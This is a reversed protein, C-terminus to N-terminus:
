FRGTLSLTFQRGLVDDVQQFQPFPTSRTINNAVFNATFNENIEYIIGYNFTNISPFAFIVSQEDFDAPLTQVNGVTSNERFWQLYHTFPGVEHFLDVRTELTPIEGAAPNLTLPSGDAFIDFRRLWYASGRFNIDGWGSAARGFVDALEFNYRVEGNIARIERSALNANPFFVFAFNFPQQCCSPQGPVAAPPIPGGTIPNTAPIVQQGSGNDVGFVLSDCFLSFDGAAFDSSDFCGPLSVGPGALAIEDSINIALFDGSLVLNPIFSPRYTVGVTWNDAVENQLTPTGGTSANQGNLATTFTSLFSDAEAASVGLVNQAAFLCNARRQAPNPGQGITAATCVSGTANSFGTGIPGFLEIISASRVSRNRNGRFTLDEFPSWQGGAQFTLDLTGPTNAFNVFLPNDTSQNRSVMRIAGILRLDNFAFPRVDGGFIPLETEFGGEFFRLAGDSATGTTNRATGSLFVPSPEFVLTERRWEFQTNFQWAGAPLQVLEGGFSAAGYFQQGVNTAGSDTVIYDQNAATATNPGLINFPTCGAIQDATPVLGTTININALNPNRVAISEPTALTQQRCVPGNPGQVADVALAFELDLFQPALNIVRNRAYSFSVDWNFERGLAEFEGELSHATRFTRVDNGSIFDGALDTHVRNVFFARRGGITPLVLGQAVLADIQATLEDSVFPNDDIFIPTATSGAAASGGLSLNSLPANQSRFRVESFQNETKYRINPTIDFRTTLNAVGRDTGSDLNTFGAQNFNFGDGGVVSTFTPLNGVTSQGLDFPTLLGNAGFQLPVAVRPFLASTAPDTNLITPFNNTPNFLAVFLNPDLGPNASFYEFPTPRNRQLLAVAISNIQGTSLGTLNTGPALTNIVNTGSVGTPLASPAFFAFGQPDATNRAFAGGVAITPFFPNGPQLGAASALGGTVFVGSPSLRPDLNPGASFFNSAVNDSAASLFASPIATGTPTGARLADAAAAASFAATNRVSGNLLNNRFAQAQSFDRDGGSRIIDQHFYELGLTVNLRDNFFNKGFTGYGRWNAGDGFETLGGQGTITVGEFDDKLIVNVVGCVADAGYIAGGAGTVAEVREIMGPNIVTLDVQAGTANDPVFVTGQNGSIFRRGNVLTLTRQTGCDLLDTFAFNDGFQGNAGRSNSGVGVLPLEELADLVNTYAREQFQVAGVSATPLSTDFNERRIRSGTVVVRDKPGEEDSAAAPAVEEPQAFAATTLATMTLASVGTALLARVGFGKRNFRM